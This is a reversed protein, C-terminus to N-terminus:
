TRGGGKLVQHFAAKITRRFRRNLPNIERRELSQPRLTYVEEERTCAYHIDM